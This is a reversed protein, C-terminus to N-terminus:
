SGAIGIYISNPSLHIASVIFTGGFFFLNADFGVLFMGLAVPIVVKLLGGITSAEKIVTIDSNQEGM